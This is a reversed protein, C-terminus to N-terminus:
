RSPHSKPRRAISKAWRGLEHTTSAFDCRLAGAISPRPGIDSWRLDLPATTRLALAELVSYTKCKTSEAKRFLFRYKDTLAASFSLSTAPGRCALAQACGSLKLPSGHERRKLYVAHRK